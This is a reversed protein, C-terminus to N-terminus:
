NRDNLQKITSMLIERIYKDPMDETVVINIQGSVHDHGVGILMVGTAHNDTLQDAWSMLRSKNIEEIREKTLPETTRTGM